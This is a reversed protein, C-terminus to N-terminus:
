ADSRKLLSLGGGILGLVAGVLIVSIITIVILGLHMDAVKGPGISSSIAWGLTSDVVGLFAGTASGFFWKSRRSALFSFCLYLMFSGISFWAYDIGTLVSVIASAADFVLVAVGGILTIRVAGNM